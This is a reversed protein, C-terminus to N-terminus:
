RDLIKLELELEVGSAERVRRRIEDILALVDSATAGGRNVIFNAHRTSVQAGGITLGKLGAAEIIRGAADGPPNKFVSGASPEGWPTAKKRGALDREMHERMRAQDGPELAFVAELVVLGRAPIASTRYGLELDEPALDAIEGDATLVKTKELVDGLAGEPTGANMALGGGVTGPISAVPELGALGLELALKALRGLSAGAEARLRRDDIPEMHSMRPYTSAVIADTGEDRVLLNSGRGVVVLRRGEGRAWSVLM